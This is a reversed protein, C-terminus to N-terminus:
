SEEFVLVEEGVPFTQGVAAGVSVVVPTKLVLLRSDHDTTDQQSGFDFHYVNQNAGLEDVIPIRVVRRDTTGSTATNKFSLVLARTNTNEHAAVIADQIAQSFTFANRAVALTGAGLSTLTAGGGGVETLRIAVLSSGEVITGGSATNFFTAEITVDLPIDPVDLEAFGVAQEQTSGALYRDQYALHTVELVDNGHKLEVQASYANTNAGRTHFFVNFFFLWREDTVFNSAPQTLGTVVLPTNVGANAQTTLKTVITNVSGDGSGGGGGGAPATVLQWNGNNNISVFRNTSHNPGFVATTPIREASTTKAWDDVDSEDLKAAVASAANSATAQAAAAANSADQADNQAEDAAQQAAEASDRATQDTGNFMGGGGGAPLTLNDTSGDAFTVVLESGNVALGTVPNGVSGVAQQASEVADSYGARHVRYPLLMRAAGSNRLANAYADGRAAEPQDYLYGALRRVAENHVADPATPVHQTVAETAYALLRTAEALEEPSDSLRMAATLEAITLTVVM